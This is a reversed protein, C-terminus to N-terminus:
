KYCVVIFEKSNQNLRSEHFDGFIEYRRFASREILHELEYRFYFRMPMIWEERKRESDEEWELTFHVEIIQNILDPNTNVIRKVKKGPEYEGEFDTHNEFGHILYKLDPVFADFIFRGNENLHNCVNNLAQLQQEKEQLHMMVRFPAIVLDFKLDSSFDIINQLSVRSLQEKKLKGSLVEVMAPSIDL